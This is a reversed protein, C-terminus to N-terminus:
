FENRGRPQRAPQPLPPLAEGRELDRERDGRGGYLGRDTRSSHGTHTRSAPQTTTHGQHGGSGSPSQYRPPPAPRYEGLKNGQPRTPTGEVSTEGSGGGVLLNKEGKKVLFKELEVLNRTNAKFFADAIDGLVPTLGLVFDLIINFTMKSKTAADLGVKCCNLYLMLAFFVDIFDGLAPILGVVSSLGFRIGCINISNDLRYARRRVALLIKADSPTIGDPVDQRKHKTVKGDARTIFYPDKPLAFHKKGSGEAYKKALMKAVAASM